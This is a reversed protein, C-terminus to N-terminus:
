AQGRFAGGLEPPPAGMMRASAAYFKSVPPVGRRPQEATRSATRM